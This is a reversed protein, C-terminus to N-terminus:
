RKWIVERHVHLQLLMIAVLPVNHARLLLSILLVYCTVLVDAASQQTSRGSRRDYYLQFLSKIAMILVCLHVFQAFRIGDEPTGVSAVKPYKVCGTVARYLYVGVQGTTFITFMVLGCPTTNIRYFISLTIGLLSIITLLSIVTKNEPHVLWDQVDPQDSWKIGTQNWSRLIRDCLLLILVYATTRKDGHDTRKGIHCKSDGKHKVKETVLNERSSTADLSSNNTSTEEKGFYPYVTSLNTLYIECLLIFHYSTTLFYWTQHEEEIFSTSLLSINHLLLGFVLFIVTKTNVVSSTFFFAPLGFTRIEIFITIWSLLTIATSLIFISSTSFSLM